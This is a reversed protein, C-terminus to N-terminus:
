TRPWHGLPAQRAHRVYLIRITESRVLYTVRYKFRKLFGCRIDPTIEPCSAPFRKVKTEWAEYEDLFAGGLGAEADLYRAAAILEQEALRNFSVKV